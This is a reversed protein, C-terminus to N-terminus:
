QLPQQDKSDVPNNTPNIIYDPANPVPNNVLYGGQEIKLKIAQQIESLTRKCQAFEEVTYSSLTLMHTYEHTHKVLLDMLAHLDLDIYQLM